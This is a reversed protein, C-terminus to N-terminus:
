HQKRQNTTDYPAGYENESSAIDVLSIIKCDIQCSQVLWPFLFYDYVDPVVWNPLVHDNDLAQDSDKFNSMCREMEHTSLISCNEEEKPRLPSPTTYDYPAAASGKCGADSKISITSQGLVISNINYLCNHM